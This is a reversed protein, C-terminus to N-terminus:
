PWLFDRKKSPIILTAPEALAKEKTQLERELRRNQRIM